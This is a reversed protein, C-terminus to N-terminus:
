ASIGAAELAEARDKFIQWRVAMGDRVTWVQGVRREVPIGSARGVGRQFVVVVVRDDADLIEEPSAQFESFESTITAMVEGVGEHGHLDRGYLDPVVGRYNIEVEPDILALAAAADGRGTAAYLSEIVEVTETPM